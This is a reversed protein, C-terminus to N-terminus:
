KQARAVLADGGCIAEGQQQAAALHALLAREVLLGEAAAESGLSCAAAAWSATYAEFDLAQCWTLLASGDESDQRTGKQGGSGSAAGGNLGLAARQEPDFLLHPAAPRWGNRDSLELGADSQAARIPERAADPQRRARKAAGGTGADLCASRDPAEAAYDRPAFANIDAVPRHTFIKYLVQPPFSAGGLRFRVHAGAAADLLAAERPNIARLLARPDDGGRAGSGSGLQM